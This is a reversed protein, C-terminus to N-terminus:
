LEFKYGLMLSFVSNHSAEGNAKVANTLSIHYRADIVINNTEYSLGIPMALYVNPISYYEIGSMEFAKELSVSASLGDANAHVKSSLKVGPQLGAKIALGKAVYINALLPINLYDMNIKTDVGGQTGKTGQQSYLAGFSFGVMRSVQYEAEIGGICGLKIDGESNTLNALNIGVKPQFSFSGVAHQAMCTTVLILFLCFLIFFKKM